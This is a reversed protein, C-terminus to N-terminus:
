YPGSSPTSSSPTHVPPLTSSPTSVGLSYGPTAASYGPTGPTQLSMAPTYPTQGGETGYPDPTAYDTGRSVPTAASPTDSSPTGFDSRPTNPYFNSWLDEGSGRSPTSTFDERMPTALVHSPTSPFDGRMDDSDLRDAQYDGGERSSTDAREIDDMAVIATRSNAQIEVQFGSGAPNQIKAVYGAYKGKKIRVLMGRRFQQRRGYGTGHSTPMNVAPRYAGVLVLCSSDLAIIGGNSHISSSAVFATQHSFHKIVGTIGKHPGDCVDVKDGVVLNRRYKDLGSEVFGPGNYRGNGRSATKRPGLEQLHLEYAINSSDLVTFTERNISVIVGLNHNPLQILDHLFYGGRSNDGNFVEKSIQLDALFVSINSDTSDTRISAVYPSGAVSEDRKVRLVFGTEGMLNGRMVRVHDGARFFKELKSLEIELTDKKLLVNKDPRIVATGKMISLVTGTVGIEEGEAILCSDGPVFVNERKPITHALAVLSDDGEGSEEATRMGVQFLQIEDPLPNVNVGDISSGKVGERLFFGGEKIKYKKCLIYRFSASGSETLFDGIKVQMEADRSLTANFRSVANQMDEETFLKQPPRDIYTRVSKKADNVAQRLKKAADPDNKEASHRLKEYEGAIIELLDFRPIMKLDVTNKGIDLAVIQALDGKYGNLAGRKLRIWDGNHLREGSFGLVFKEDEEEDDEDGRSRKNNISSAAKPRKVETVTLVQPMEDLPVVTINKEESGLKTYPYADPIENLAIQVMRESQAEVFIFGKTHPACVASFIPVSYSSFQKKKLLTFLIEMERGPVCKVSFLRPDNVSPLNMSREQARAEEDDEIIEKYNRSREQLEREIEQDSRDMWSSGKPRLEYKAKDRMAAERLSPDIEEEEDEDEDESAEVDLFSSGGRKKKKKRKEGGSGRSRKTAKKPKRGYDEDDDDDVEVADDDDDDEAAEEEVFDEEEEQEIENRKDDDDDSM